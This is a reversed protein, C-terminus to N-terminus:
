SAWQGNPNIELFVYEGSEDLIFDIAGFRLNLETMLVDCKQKVSDPLEIRSHKLESEGKRWDTKTQVDVQSHILTAYAKNGVMTVRIDGKKRIHHQIYNPSMEFEAKTFTLSTLANTFIVKSESKESILGSRIPKIICEQNNRLRFSNFVDYDNTIISDPIVFGISKAIDLQYIKNEAQRIAFLPSIWYAYHLIKYIGELCYIIENKLFTEEGASLEANDISPLEPRRYYVSSIRKLDIEINLITDKIVYSNSGFDLTVFCTKTLEETNFRYFNVDRRKLEKVIFDSTVDSKNSIILVKTM